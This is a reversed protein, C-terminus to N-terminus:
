PHSANRVEVKGKEFAVVRRRELSEASSLRRRISVSLRALARKNKKYVITSTERVRLM